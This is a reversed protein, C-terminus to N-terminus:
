KSRFWKKKTDQVVVHNRGKRKAKYLAQDAMKIFETNSFDDKIVPSVSSVGFSATVQYSESGDDFAANEVASRLKEAVQSATEQSTQPLLIVFEEGGYRALTDYERLNSRLIKCFEILVFDGVLHGFSENFHRFHDVDVLLLSLHSEMRRSRSVERNLIKHFYRSNYIGTLGDVNALHALQKNKEKLEVSTNELSVLTDVLKRNMQEYDMNLLSLRINAEQLIEVVPKTPQMKVGFIAGGEKVEIHARDLISTIDTRKLNLLAKAEAVFREHCTNPQDFHLIGLLLDSLFLSKTTLSIQKDKGKYRTPEHHHLIPLLLSPPFNWNKAVQHGVFCHDAGFTAQEASRIHGGAESADALVKEYDSPFTIALILQGLNQLLGAVFIEEMNAGKVKELILKAGIATTISHQWFSDFGQKHKKGSKGVELLCFSLVLCRVANTGLMSVAQAISGVKGPFSYFASNAVKLIKASLAVDLSILDAIDALSTEEKATLSILKAAVAPLTPLKDSSLVAELLEEKNM